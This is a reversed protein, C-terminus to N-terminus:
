IRRRCDEHLNAREPETRQPCTRATKQRRAYAPFYLVRTVYQRWVCDYGPSFNAGWTSDHAWAGLGTQGFFRSNNLLQDNQEKAHNDQQFPNVVNVQGGPLRAVTAILHIFLVALDRM